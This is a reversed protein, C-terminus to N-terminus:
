TGQVRNRALDPSWAISPSRLGHPNVNELWADVMRIGTKGEPFAGVGLTVGQRVVTVVNTPLSCDGGACAKVFEGALLGCADAGLGDVPAGPTYAVSWTGDETDAASLNQCLPWGQGDTRVLIGGPDLRYKSPDLTAGDIKVTEVVGVPGQLRIQRVGDCGCDRGCGCGINLWTGGLNVPFWPTSGGGGEVPYTRWTAESCNGSCPRVVIPCGGIRYGTLARLSQGALAIARAKQEDSYLPVGEVPPDAEPDPPILWADWDPVCTTDASWCYDPLDPVMESM